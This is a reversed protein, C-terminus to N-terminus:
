LGLHHIEVQHLVNALLTSYEKILMMEKLPTSMYSTSYFSSSIVPIVYLLPWQRPSCALTKTHGIETAHSPSPTQPFPLPTM